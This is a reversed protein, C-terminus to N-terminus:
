YIIYKENVYVYCGITIITIIFIVYIFVRISRACQPNNQLINVYVFIYLFTRSKSRPM